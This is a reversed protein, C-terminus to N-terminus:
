DGIPCWAGTAFDDLENLVQTVARAMNITGSAPIQLALELVALHETELTAANRLATATEQLLAAVENRSVDDPVMTRLQTTCTRVTQEVTRATATPAGKRAKGPKKRVSAPTPEVAKGPLDKARQRDIHRVAAAAVSKALHDQLETFGSERLMHERNALSPSQLAAEASRASVPVVAAFSGATEVTCRRVVKAVDAASRMIDARTLALISTAKVDAPIRNWFARESQRWAQNMPSCWIAFDIYRAIEDIIATTMRPDSIGPTDIIDIASLVPAASEVRICLLDKTSQGILADPSLDVLKGAFTLGQLRPAPGKTIWVAPLDTATVRTPLLTQGLLANLLASKGASYEGMLAFSPRRAFWAAFQRSTQPDIVGTM